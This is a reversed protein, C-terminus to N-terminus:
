PSETKPRKVGIANAGTATYAWQREDDGGRLSLRPIDNSQERKRKLELLAGFSSFTNM